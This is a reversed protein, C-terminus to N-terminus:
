AVDGDADIHAWRIRNVVASIAPQTVGYIAALDRQRYGGSAYRRRIERVQDDTLKSLGHSQGLPQTGDTWRDAANEVPTAWRLHSPAVCHRNRCSHAAQMHPEPSSGAALWLTVRHARMNNSGARGFTGYGNTATTGLWLMCGNEDPLAVKAWFRRLEADSINM